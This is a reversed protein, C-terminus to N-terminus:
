VLSNMNLTIVAIEASAFLDNIVIFTIQLMFLWLLPSDTLIVVEQIVTSIKSEPLLRSM